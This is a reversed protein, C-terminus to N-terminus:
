VKCSIDPSRTELLQQQNLSFSYHLSNDDLHLASLNVANWLSCAGLLFLNTLPNYIKKNCMEHNIM